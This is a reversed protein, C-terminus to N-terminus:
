ADARLERLLDAPMCAMCWPESYPGVIVAVEGCECTETEMDYVTCRECATRM